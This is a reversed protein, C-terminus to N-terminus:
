DKQSTKSHREGVYSLLKRYVIYIMCADGNGKTFTCPIYGTAIFNSAPCRWVLKQLWLIIIYYAKGADM